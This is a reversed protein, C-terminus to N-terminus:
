PHRQMRVARVVLGGRVFLAWGPSGSPDWQPCQARLVQTGDDASGAQAVDCAARWARLPSDSLEVFELRTQGSISLRSCGPASDITVGPKVSSRVTFPPCTLKAVRGSLEQLMVHESPGGSSRAAFSRESLSEPMLWRRALARVNASARDAFTALAALWLDSGPAAPEELAFRQFRALADLDAIVDITQSSRPILELRQLATAPDLEAIALCTEAAALEPAGLGSRQARALLSRALALERTRAAPAGRDRRRGGLSLRPGSAFLSPCTLACPDPSAENIALDDPCWGGRLASDIHSLAQLVNLEPIAEWLDLNGLSSDILDLTTSGGPLFAVVQALDYLSSYASVQSLADRVAAARSVVSGCTPSWGLEQALFTALSDHRILRTPSIAGASLDTALGLLFIARRDARSELPSPQDCSGLLRQETKDFRRHALEHAMAFTLFEAGDSARGLASYRVLSRTLFVSDSTPCYWAGPRPDDNSAIIRLSPPHPINEVRSMAALLHQWLGHAWRTDDDEEALTSAVLDQCSRPLSAARGRQPALLCALAAVLFTTPLRRM